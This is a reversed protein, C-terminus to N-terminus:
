PLDNRYCHSKCYLEALLSSKSISFYQRFLVEANEKQVLDWIFKEQELLKVTDGTLRAYNDGMFNSDAGSGSPNPNERM